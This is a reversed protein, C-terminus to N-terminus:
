ATSRVEKLLQKEAKRRLGPLSKEISSFNFRVDSALRDYLNSAPEISLSGDEEIKATVSKKIGLKERVERPIQLRGKEDVKLSRVEKM